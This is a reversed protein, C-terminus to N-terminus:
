CFVNCTLLRRIHGDELIHRGAYHSPPRTQQSDPNRPPIPPTRSRIHTGQNRSKAQPRSTNPLPGRRLPDVNACANSQALSAYRRSLRATTRLYAPSPAQDSAPRPCRSPSSAGLHRLFHSRSCFPRSCRLRWPTHGAACTATRERASTSRPRFGGSADGDRLIDANSAASRPRIAATRQLYSGNRKVSRACINRATVSCVDPSHQAPDTGGKALRKRIGRLYAWVELDHRHASAIVTLIVASREGGQHGSVFLRNRRSM